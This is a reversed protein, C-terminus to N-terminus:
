EVLEISKKDVKKKKELICLSVEKMFTDRWAINM